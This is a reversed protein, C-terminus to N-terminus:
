ELEKRIKSLQENNITKLMAQKIENILNDIM